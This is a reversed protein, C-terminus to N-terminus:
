GEPFRTVSLGSIRKARMSIFSTIPFDIRYFVSDGTKKTYANFLLRQYLFFMVIPNSFVILLIKGIGVCLGISFIQIIHQLIYIM